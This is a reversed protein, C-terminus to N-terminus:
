IRLVNNSSLTDYVNTQQLIFDPPYAMHGPAYIEERKDDLRGFLINNYITDHFLYTDQTVLGIQERLSRQTVTRLDHGDLRVSGSTPDYLRLILSLITSKGAGSAGVLAYSKGAESCLNFTPTLHSSTG